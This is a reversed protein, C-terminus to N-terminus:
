SRGAGVDGGRRRINVSRNRGMNIAFGLSELTTNKEEWDFYDAWAVQGQVFRTQPNQQWLMVVRSPEEFPLPQLLLTNVVRFVATNSGIGLALTLVAVITFGPAHILTRVAYRLDSVIDNMLRIGVADRCNERTQELGGFEVLVRRRAEDRPLGSRVLQDTQMEIHFQLEDDM